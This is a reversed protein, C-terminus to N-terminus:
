MLEKREEDDHNGTRLCNEVVVFFFQYRKQLYFNKEGKKRKGREIGRTMGNGTFFVFSSLKRFLTCVNRLNDM